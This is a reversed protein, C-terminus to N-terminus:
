VGPLPQQMPLCLPADEGGRGLSDWSGRRFMLNQRTVRVDNADRARDQEHVLVCVGGGGGGMKRSINM